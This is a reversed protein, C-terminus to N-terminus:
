AMKARLGALFPILTSGAKEEYMEGEDYRRVPLEDKTVDVVIYMNDAGLLPFWGALDEAPLGNEEFIERHLVLVDVADDFTLHEWPRILLRNAYKNGPFPVGNRWRFWERISEPIILSLEAEARDFDAETPAPLLLTPAPLGLANRREEIQTLASRVLDPNM